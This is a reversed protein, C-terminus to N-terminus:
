RLAADRRDIFIALTAQPYAGLVPQILKHVAARNGVGRIFPQGAIRSSRQKLVPGAANPHSSQIRAQSAKVPAMERSLSHMLAQSRVGNQRQSVGPVARKPRASGASQIEQAIAM